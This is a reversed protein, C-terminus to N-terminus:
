ADAPARRLRGLPAQVGRTKAAFVIVRRNTYGDEVFARETEPDV